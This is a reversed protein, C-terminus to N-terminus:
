SNITKRKENISKEMEIRREIRKVVDKMRIQLYTEPEYSTWDSVCKHTDVCFDCVCNSSTFRGINEDNM